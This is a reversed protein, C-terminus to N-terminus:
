IAPATPSGMPAGANGAQQGLTIYASTDGNSRNNINTV